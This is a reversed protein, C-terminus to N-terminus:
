GGKERGKGRGCRSRERRESMSRLEAESRGCDRVGDVEGESSVFTPTSALSATRSRRIDGLLEDLLSEGDTSPYSDLSSSNSLPIKKGLSLVKSNEDEREKEEGGPDLGAGSQEPSNSLDEMEIEIRLSQNTYQSKTYLTPWGGCM